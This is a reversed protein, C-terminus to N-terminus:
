AWLQFKPINSVAKIIDTKSVIGLLIDNKDVIPIADLKFDIMVKAVRRIDSIPDSTILEPLYIDNLERDLIIRSNDIDEMLINLIMKKNIMGMIKEGNTVVPIQSVQNEKLTNYADLISKSIDINISDKTMIDKIHYVVDSTDIHAIKKYISLEEHNEQAKEDKDLYNQFLTDDDPKLSTKQARETNKIEYLNDATSRFNVSGNNYIAFM